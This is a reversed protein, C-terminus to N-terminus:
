KVEVREYRAGGGKADRRYKWGTGRLIQSMGNQDSKSGWGVTNPTFEWGNVVSYEFHGMLTNYHYINRYIVEDVWEGQEDTVHRWTVGDTAWWSSAELTNRKNWLAGRIPSLMEIRTRIKM